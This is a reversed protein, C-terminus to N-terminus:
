TKSVYCTKNCVYSKAQLIHQKYVGCSIFLFYRDNDCISKVKSIIIVSYKSKVSKPYKTNKLKNYMLKNVLM